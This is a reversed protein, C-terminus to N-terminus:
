VFVMQVLFMYVATGGAMSIMMNRKWLHLLVTAAIAIFEPLGHTGSLLDVDKLCYVVLMAFIAAPLAAGLYQIYRPTPRRSSFLIFPLFRSLMTAAICLAVTIIQEWLPMPKRFVTLLLLIVVMTPIMFFDRGFIALCGLSAGFGIWATWHHKEKLFQELFIVVFMATMVFSLGKTDFTLFSGLTAGLVAGGLWYMRDLFTIWMMYWSSDVGAPAKTAFELAFTEDSMGFILYFKKWGLGKFRDLMALGYFLHRAQIMFAVFFTTVPAFPSLLMSAAVFELSGGYILWAMLAPYWVSFGNVHMYIGYAAGLFLYGTGVPLTVKAAPAFARLISNVAM